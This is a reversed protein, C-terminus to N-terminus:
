RRLASLRSCLGVASRPREEPKKALLSMIVAEIRPHVGRVFTRFPDPLSYVHQRLVSTTPGEFPLRGTICEYAIVGLSYLDSTGDVPQGLCQEPSMYAPTGVLSGVMTLQRSFEGGGTAKALGFDLIKVSLHNGIRDIFINAPKLDRHVIGLEHAEALSGAAQELIEVVTAPDMPGESIVDSLARGRLLETVYYPRGDRTRGYDFLRLTNPHTLRAIIQAEAVFRDNLEPLDVHITPDLVKVAVERGVAMQEAAYVAAMSGKGILRLIIYRDDLIHGILRHEPLDDDPIETVVDFDYDAVVTVAEFPDHDRLDDAPHSSTASVRSGVSPLSGWSRAQSLVM